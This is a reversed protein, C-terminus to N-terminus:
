IYKSLVEHLASGPDTYLHRGDLLYHIRGSPDTTYTWVRQITLPPSRTEKNDLVDTFEDM